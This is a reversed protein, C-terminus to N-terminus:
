YCRRCKDFANQSFDDEVSNLIRAALEIIGNTDGYMDETNWNPNLIEKTKKPVSIGSETVIQRKDYGSV